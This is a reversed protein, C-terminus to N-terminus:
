LITLLSLAPAVVVSTLVYSSITTTLTDISNLPLEDTECDNKSERQFEVENDPHSHWNKDVTLSSQCERGSSFASDQAPGTLSEIKHFVIPDDEM